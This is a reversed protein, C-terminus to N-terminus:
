SNPITFEKLDMIQGVIEVDRVTMDHLGYELLTSAADGWMRRYGVWVGFVVLSMVIGISAAIPLANLPETETTTTDSVTVPNGTAQAQEYAASPVNVNGLSFGSGEVYSVPASPAYDAFGSAPSIRLIYINDSAIYGANIVDFKVNEIQVQQGSNEIIITRTSTTIYGKGYFNNLIVYSVLASACLVVAAVSIGFTLRRM